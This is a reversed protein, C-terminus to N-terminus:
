DLLRTMESYFLSTLEDGILSGVIELYSRTFILESTIVTLRVRPFDCGFEIV